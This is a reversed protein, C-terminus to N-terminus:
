GAPITSGRLRSCASGAETAADIVADLRDRTAALEQAQRDIRDRESTLRALMEPTAIGTHMCPLLQVIATSSLGAAYLQQILEVREIAGESYSRQGNSTRQAPLLAREEYYRLARTSVGAAAAVEGIRM